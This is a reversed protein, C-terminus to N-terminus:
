VFFVIHTGVASSDTIRDARDVPCDEVLDLVFHGANRPFLNLFRERTPSDRVPMRVLKPM